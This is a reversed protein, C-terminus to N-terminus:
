ATMRLAKFVVSSIKSNLNINRKHHLADEKTLYIKPRSYEMMCNAFEDHVDSFDYSEGSCLTNMCSRQNYEDFYMPYHNRVHLGNTFNFNEEDKEIGRIAAVTFRPAVFHVKEDGNSRKHTKLDDDIDVKVEAICHPYVPGKLFLLPNKLREFFSLKCDYLNIFGNLQANDEKQM